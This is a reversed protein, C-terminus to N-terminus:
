VKNNGYKTFPIHDSAADIPVAALDVQCSSYSLLQMTMVDIDHDDRSSQRWEYLRKINADISRELHPYTM